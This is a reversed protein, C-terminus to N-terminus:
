TARYLVVMWLDALTFEQTTMTLERAGFGAIGADITFRM